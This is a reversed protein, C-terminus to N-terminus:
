SAETIMYSMNCDNTNCFEFRFQSLVFGSFTVFKTLTFLNFALVEPFGRKTLYTLKNSCMKFM